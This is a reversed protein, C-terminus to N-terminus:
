MESLTYTVITATMSVVDGEDFYVEIDRLTVFRDMQGVMEAFAIGNQYGGVAEVLVPVETYGDQEIVAQPQFLYIRLGAALLSEHIQDLLFPIDKKEQLFKQWLAQLTDELGADPSADLTANIRFDRRQGGDQRAVSYILEVHQCLLSSELNRVFDAVVPNSSATGKLTMYDGSTQLLTLEIDGGATLQALEDYLLAPFKQQKEIEFLTEQSLTEQSDSTLAILDDTATKQAVGHAMPLAFVGILCLVGYVCVRQYRKMLYEGTLHQIRYKMHYYPSSFTPLWGLNHIGVVQFKAAGLLGKGYSVPSMNSISVAVSDCLCERALNIYRNAYWVLPHFFYIAQLLQQLGMWLNDSRAIHALEHALIAKNVTLHHSDAFCAPMYIVPRWVGFTFPSLSHESCVLRVPKKIGLKGCYDQLTQQLADDHVESAHIIIKRYKMVQKLYLAGYLFMGLFWGFLLLLYGSARWVPTGGRHSASEDDPMLGGVPEETASSMPSAPAITQRPHRSPEVVTYAQGDSEEGSFSLLFRDANEYVTKKASLRQVLQRGSLPFSLDPPLVLRLLLLSWLGMQWYASRHKLLKALLLIIPLLILSYLVQQGLLPIIVESLNKVDTLIHTPM